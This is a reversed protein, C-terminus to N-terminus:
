GSGADCYGDMHLTLRLHRKFRLLPVHLMDCRVDIQGTGGLREWPLAIAPIPPRRPSCPLAPVPAAMGSAM